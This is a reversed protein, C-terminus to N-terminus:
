FEIYFLKIILLFGLIIILYFFCRILKLCIEVYYKEEMDGKLLVSGFGNVLIDGM